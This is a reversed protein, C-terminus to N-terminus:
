RFPGTPFPVGLDGVRAWPIYVAFYYALDGAMISLLLVIALWPRVSTWIADLVLAVLWVVAPVAVLYHSSSPTADLLLGGLIMTLVIWVVPIWQRKLIAFFFGAIFFPAALGMVLPVNAHYFGTADTFTTLGAISHFIQDWVAQLLSMDTQNLRAFFAPGWFVVQRWRESFTAPEM